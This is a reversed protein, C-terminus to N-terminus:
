PKANLTYPKTNRTYPKTNPTYPKTNLTYVLWAAKARDTAVATLM